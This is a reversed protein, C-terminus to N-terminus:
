VRHWSQFAHDDMISRTSGARHVTSNQAARSVLTGRPCALPIKVFNRRKWLLISLSINYCDLHFHFLLKTEWMWETMPFLRHHFKKGDDSSSFWDRVTHCDRVSLVVLLPQSLCQSIKQWNALDPVTPSWVRDILWAAPRRPPPPYGYSYSTEAGAGTVLGCFGIFLAGSSSSSNISLTRLHWKVYLSLNHGIGFCPEIFAM